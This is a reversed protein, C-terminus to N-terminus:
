STAGESESLAIAKDFLALVEAHTHTDNFIAVPTEGLVAQLFRWGPLISLRGMCYEVPSACIMAGGACVRCAVTHLDTSFVVSGRADIGFSKQCWKEPTDIRARAAKLRAIETQIDM